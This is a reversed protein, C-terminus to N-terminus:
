LAHLLEAEQTQLPIVNRCTGRQTKPFKVSNVCTICTLKSGALEWFLTWPCVFVYIFFCVSCNLLKPDSCNIQFYYMKNLLSAKSIETWLNRFFTLKGFVIDHLVVTKLMSLLTEQAAFPPDHSVSSQLISASFEAKACSYMVNLFFLLKFLLLIIWININYQIKILFICGQHASSFLFTCVGFQEITTYLSM